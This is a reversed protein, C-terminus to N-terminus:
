RRGGYAVFYPYAVAFVFALFGGLGARAGPSLRQWHARMRPLELAGFAAFVLWLGLWPIRFRSTANSLVHVALPVTLVALALRRATPAAAALGLAGLLAAAGWALGVAAVSASRVAPSVEGYAGVSQKFLLYSDPSLLLAGNRVLKKALWWPQEDAIAALAYRRAFDSRQLEDGATFYRQSFALHAPGRDRLWADTEFTNGEATAFWGITSVPVFRGLLQANRLTWPAVCAAILALLLGAHALTRRQEGPRAERWWWWAVALAVGLAVERVLAAAGLWLGTALARPAGPARRYHVATALGATLLLASATESFLSHSFVILSPYLAVCLGALLGVRRDFLLGGLAAAAGALLSGLAIQLAILRGASSVSADLGAATDADLLAALLAPHGPPRWARLASGTAEYFVHGEGRYYLEDGILSLPAALGFAAARIAAALLALAACRALWSRPTEPATL